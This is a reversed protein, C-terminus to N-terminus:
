VTPMHFGIVRFDGEFPKVPLIRLELRGNLVRPGLSFVAYWVAVVRHVAIIRSSIGNVLELATEPVTTGAAIRVACLGM